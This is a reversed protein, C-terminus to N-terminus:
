KERLTASAEMVMRGDAGLAALALGTETRKGVLYLSDPAFAPALGKFQFQGLAQEGLHASALEVLLTATLPGHVVLAPYGEVERAYDLDYHIRHTNFSLASYRFLLRADPELIKHWDWARLDPPALPAPPAPMPASAAPRYVLNQMERVAAVGDALTIHEVAVFVLPGSGGSKETISDIRSVREIAANQAIASQFIVQSGAWMRRPLPIPPLFDGRLPHGDQDLRATPADPLCLCWHYAQPVFRAPLPRDFTACWRALATASVQDQVRMEKGIWDSYAQTMTRSQGANDQM